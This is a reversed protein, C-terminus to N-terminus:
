KGVIRDGISVDLDRSLNALNAEDVVVVHGARCDDSYECPMLDDLVCGCGQQGHLYLGDYGFRDLYAEVVDRITDDGCVEGSKAYNALISKISIMGTEREAVFSARGVATHFWKPDSGSM